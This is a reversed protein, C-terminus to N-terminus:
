RGSGPLTRPPRSAKRVSKHLKDPQRDDIQTRRKESAASVADHRAWGFARGAERQRREGPYARELEAVSEAAFDLAWLVMVRHSRAAFLGALDSLFESDKSFLVQRRKKINQKVEDLWYM